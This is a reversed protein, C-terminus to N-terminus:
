EITPKDLLRLIADEIVASVTRNRRRARDRVRSLLRRAITITIAVRPAPPAEGGPTGAARALSLYRKAQRESVRFRERLRHVGEIYAVGEGVLARAYQM